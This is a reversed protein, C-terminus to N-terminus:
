EGTSVPFWPSSDGRDIQGVFAFSQKYALTCTAGDDRLDLPDNGALRIDVPHIFQLGRVKPGISMNSLTLRAKASRSDDASTSSWTEESFRRM